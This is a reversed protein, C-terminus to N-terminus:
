REECEHLAWRVDAIGAFLLVGFVAVSEDLALLQVLVVLGAISFALFRFTPHGM